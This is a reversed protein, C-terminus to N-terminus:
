ATLLQNHAVNNSTYGIVSPMLSDFGLSSFDYFEKGVAELGINQFEPTFYDFQEYLTNAKDIMNSCYEAQPTFSCICLIIGFDRCEFKIKNGNIVSTGTAAIDGVNGNVSEGTAATAEISNINM